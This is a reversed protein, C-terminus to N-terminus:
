PDLYRRLLCKSGGESFTSPDRYPIYPKPPDIYADIATGHLTQTYEVTSMEGDGM